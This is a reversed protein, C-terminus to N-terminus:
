PTLLQDTRVFDEGGIIYFGAPLRDVDIAEALATCAWAISDHTTGTCKQLVLLFRTHADVGYLM